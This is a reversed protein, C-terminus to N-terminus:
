DSEDDEELYEKNIKFSIIIKCYESDISRIDIHYLSLPKKMLELIGEKNDNKADRIIFMKGGEIIKAVSIAEVTEHYITSEHTVYANGQEDNSVYCYSM